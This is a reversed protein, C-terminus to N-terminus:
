ECYPCRRWNIDIMRGCDQCKKKLQEKCNPCYNYNEKIINQCHICKINDPGDSCSCSKDNSLLIYICIIFVAILIIMM